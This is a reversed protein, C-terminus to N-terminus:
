LNQHITPYYHKSSYDDLNDQGTHWSVDITKDDQKSITWYYRMNMAHSRQQKITIHKISTSTNNDTHIPTDPQTNDLEQLLIHLNITEQTNFFLSVMGSEAASAAVGITKECHTYPTTSSFKNEM